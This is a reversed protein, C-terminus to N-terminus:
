TQQRMLFLFDKGSKAALTHAQNPPDGNVAPM